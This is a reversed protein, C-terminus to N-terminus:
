VIEPSELLVLDAVGVLETLELSVLVEEPVDM